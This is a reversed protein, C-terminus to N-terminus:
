ASKRRLVLRVPEPTPQVDYLLRTWDCTAAQEEISAAFAQAERVRRTKRDM